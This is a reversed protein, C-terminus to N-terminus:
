KTEKVFQYGGGTAGWVQKGATDFGRDWSLLQDETIRVESTAFAAGRLDSPCTRDGTKGVFADGEAKLVIECGARPQLSDPTLKALPEKEKWQGAMRKPSAFTFVESVLRGQADRHVHYVRQRYPAEQRTAMAQEVYLWYGNGGKKQWIPAMHLRIDFYGTDRAAQAGSSFSGTMYRVLRDLEKDSGSRFAMSGLLIGAMLLAVFTRRALM